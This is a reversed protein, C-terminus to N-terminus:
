PCPFFQVFGYLFGRGFKEACLGCRQLFSRLRGAIWLLYRLLGNKLLCSELADIDGAEYRIGRDKSAFPFCSLHDLIASQADVPFLSLAEIVSSFAM